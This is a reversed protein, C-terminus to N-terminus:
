EMGGEAIYEAVLDRAYVGSLTAVVTLRNPGYSTNYSDTIIYYTKDDEVSDRISDGYSGVYIYYSGNEFYRSKLDKGKIACLSVDNDFPLLQYLMAYNVAGSELDYPSRVSLYGGGLVIDYQDGWQEVGKEYYLKAVLNRLTASGKVSSNTGITTYATGLVSDYKDILNEIIPDPTLSKYISHPIIEPNRAKVKNADRDFVIQAHSLGKTNDGGGQLHYVSHDDKLIYSQHSHGEFVLDVYGASLVTDYYIGEDSVFGNSSLYKESSSSRGYGDHLVYIIFDAGRDRLSRSEAKVLSTLEYDTKFYIDEVKDGSISSYCDGIAGIIGVQIEGKDLLVSPQCFDVRENTDVDFVNIGLIPFDAQEANATIHEAGWDFEHNGLTMADFGVDNMWDTVIAGKTLGAEVGGQWMDGASLIIAGEEKKSKLYTTMEDLGPQSEGDVFKGHLDNISFVDLTFNNGSGTNNGTNNGTNGNTNSGNNDGSDNSTAGGLANKIDELLDCAVFASLVFVVILLIALIKFTRKM